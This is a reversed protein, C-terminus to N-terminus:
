VEWEIKNVFHYITDALERPCFYMKISLALNFKKVDSFAGLGLRPHKQSRDNEFNCTWDDKEKKKKKKKKKDKKRKSYETVLKNEGMVRWARIM